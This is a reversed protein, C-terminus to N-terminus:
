IRFIKLTRHLHVGLFPAPPFSHTSALSRNGDLLPVVRAWVHNISQNIRQYRTRARKSAVSSRLAKEEREESAADEEAAEKANVQTRHAETGLAGLVFFLVLTVGIFSRKM